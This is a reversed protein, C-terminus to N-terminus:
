GGPKNMNVHRSYETRCTETKCGSNTHHTTMCMTMYVRRYKYSLLKISINICYNHMEINRLYNIPTIVIKM